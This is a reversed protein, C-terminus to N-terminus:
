NITKKNLCEPFEKYNFIQIYVDRRQNPAANFPNRAAHNDIKKGKYVVRGLCNKFRSKDSAYLIYKPKEKMMIKKMEIQNKKERFSSWSIFDGPVIQFKAFSISRHISIVKDNEDLKSNAWRFLSYGNATHYMVKDRNKNSLSGTSLTFVSFWIIVMVGFFQIYSIYNILKYNKFIQYKSLLIILWFYPEIFFRATFQGKLYVIFTFLVILYLFYKLEKINKKFIFLIYISTFGLAYTIEGLSKPIFFLFYNEHRKFNTLYTNFNELGPLHLPLPSFLYQIFNGGFELYKWYLVPIYFVVSGLLVIKLLISIKGKKFADILIISGILISSLLFSFKGNVASILFLISILYKFFLETHNFKKDDLSFLFLSLIVANSCAFFLQPKPSSCLFILTPSSIALLLIFYNNKGIKKLIGILSLLGSLQVLSGFQEAGFFLGLGILIEGSGSLFSHLHTLTYSFTGTTIINKGVFMHYGLADSQTVPALSLLFYGILLLLLCAKNFDFQVNKYFIFNKYFTINKKLFDFNSYIGKLGLAFIIISLSQILTKSFIDYLLIPFVFLLFVNVGFIIKQYNINSIKSFILDIIKFKFFLSGFEYFGLILIISFLVGFFPYLSVLNNFFNYLFNGLM